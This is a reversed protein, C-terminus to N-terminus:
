ERGVEPAKSRAPRGTEGRSRSIRQLRVQHRRELHRRGAATNPCTAARSSMFSRSSNWPSRRGMGATGRITTRMGDLLYTNERLDCRQRLDGVIPTRAPRRRRWRNTPGSRAEANAPAASPFAHPSTAMSTPAATRRGVDVIPDPGISIDDVELEAPLLDADLRLTAGERLQIAGAQLSQAKRTL